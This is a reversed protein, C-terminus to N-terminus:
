YAQTPKLINLESERMTKVSPRRTTAQKIAKDSLAVSANLTAISADTISKNVAVKSDVLVAILQELKQIVTDLQQVQTNEAIHINNLGLEINTTDVNAPATEQQKSNVTKVENSKTDFMQVTGDPTVASINRLKGYIAAEIDATSLGTNNPHTHVISGNKTANIDVSHKSGVRKDIPIGYKDFSIASEELTVEGTPKEPKDPVEGDTKDVFTGKHIADSEARGEDTWSYKIALKNIGNFQKNLNKVYEDTVEDGAKSAEKQLRVMSNYGRSGPARGKLWTDIRKLLDALKSDRKEGSEKDMYAQSSAIAKKDIKKLEKDYSDLIDSTLEDLTIAMVRTKLMAMRAARDYDGDKELKQKSISISDLLRERRDILDQKEKELELKKGLAADSADAESDLEKLKASISDLTEETIEAVSLNMLTDRLQKLGAIKKFSFVGSNNMSKDIEDRILTFRQGLKSTDEAAHRDLRTSFSRKTKDIDSKIIGGTKDTMGSVERAYRWNEDKVARNFNDLIDSAGKDGENIATQIRDRFYQIQAETLPPGQKATMNAAKKSLYYIPNIYKLKTSGAGAETSALLRHKLTIKENKDLGLRERIADNDDIMKWSATHAKYTAYSGVTGATIIGGATAATSGGIAALAGKGTISAILKTLGIKGSFWLLAKKFGSMIANGMVIDFWGLGNSSKGNKGTKGGDDPDGDPSDITIKDKDINEEQDKASGDRDGDGDKDGKIKRVALYRSHSIVDAIIRLYDLSSKHYEKIDSGEIGFLRGLITKTASGVKKAAGFLLGMMGKYIYGLSDIITSGTRVGISSEAEDEKGKKTLLKGNVDVLGANIQDQTILAADLDAVGDKAGFIPETISWSNKLRKGNALYVGEKQKVASLLPKGPDIPKGKEYVDVYKVFLNKISPLGAKRLKAVVGGAAAGMAAGPIGGFLGGLLGGIALDPNEKLKDLTWKGAGMIGKRAKPFNEKIVGSVKKFTGSVSDWVLKAGSKLTNASPLLEKVINKGGALMGPLDKLVRGAGEYITKITKTGAKAVDKGRNVVFKKTGHMFSSLSKGLTIPINTYKAVLERMLAIQLTSFELFQAHFESFNGPVIPAPADPTSGKRNLIADLISKTTTDISELKNTTTTIGSQIASSIKSFITEIRTTFATIGDKDIGPTPIIPAVDKISTPPGPPVPETPSVPNRTSANGFEFSKYGGETDKKLLVEVKSFDFNVPFYNTESNTSHFKKYVPNKKSNSNMAIAIDQEPIQDTSCPSHLLEVSDTRNTYTANRRYPVTFTLISRTQSIRKISKLEAKPAVGRIVKAETLDKTINKVNSTFKDKISKIKDAGQTIKDNIYGAPDEDLLRQLAFIEAKSGDEKILRKLKRRTHAVAIQKRRFDFMAQDDISNEDTVIGKEEGDVVQRYSADDHKEPKYIAHLAGSTINGSKEDYMGSSMALDRFNHKEIFSALKTPAMNKTEKFIVMAIKDNSVINLKGDKDYVVSKLFLAFGLPDEIGEFAKLTYKTHTGTTVYELIEKPEWYGDLNVAVNTIFKNLDEKYEDFLDKTEKDPRRLGKTHAMSYKFSDISNTRNQESFGASKRAEKMLNKLVVKSDQLQGTSPDVRRSILEIDGALKESLREVHAGIHELHRPIVSIIATKTLNDFSAVKDANDFLDNKVYTSNANSMGGLLTDGIFGLVGGEAQYEKAKRLAALSVREKSDEMRSEMLNKIHENEGKGFHEKITADTFFKTIHKTITAAIDTKTIKGGDGMMDMMSTAMDLMPVVATVQEFGDMISKKLNKFFSAKLHAVRDGLLEKLVSKREKLEAEKTSDPLGVNHKIEELVKLTSASAAKVTDFIDKTVFLHKYKLELSAKFYNMTPGALTSSIMELRSDISGIVGSTAKFRSADILRDVQHEKRDDLALTSDQEMKTSFADSIASSIVSDRENDLRKSDSIADEDEGHNKLFGFAKEYIKKPIFSEAKPLVRAGITSITKLTPTMDNTLEDKLTVIDDKISVVEKVLESTNPFTDELGSKLGSFVGKGISKLISKTTKGVQRVQSVKGEKVNPRTSDADDDFLFDDDFDFDNDAPM